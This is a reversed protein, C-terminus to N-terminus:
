SLRWGGDIEIDQGTTNSPVFSSPPVISGVIYEETAMRKLLTKKIYKNNIGVM